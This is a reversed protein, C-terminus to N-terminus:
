LKELRVACKKYDTQKSIPCYADLTVQNIMVDEDFWPVFVMGKQPNVRGGIEVLGDVSGRRSTIRIRDGTNLGLDTADSAHLAATAHPYAKYLSDIRRTMTGSHWHELVRGTCLWFPYDSDPSEAPPEYDRLWIVAKGGSAANGYFNIVEGKQVYPDFKENFRWRTEKGDVVPWRLGRTQHYLEYPALDHGKGKGFQRYEEWIAKELHFGATEAADSILKGQPLPYEKPDYQFLHGLNLRKAVEVLQWLDSKAEGPPQIMKNWFQTRREANGYAGEKEVWM